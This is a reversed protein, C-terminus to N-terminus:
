CTKKSICARNNRLYVYHRHTETAEFDSLQTKRKEDQNRIKDIQRHMNKRKPTADRKKDAKKHM